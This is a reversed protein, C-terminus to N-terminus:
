PNQKKGPDVQGSKQNINNISHLNENIQQLRAAHEQKIDSLYHFLKERIFGLEKYGVDLRAKYFNELNRVSNVEKDRFSKVDAEVKTYSELIENMMGSSKEHAQADLIEALEKEFLERFVELNM